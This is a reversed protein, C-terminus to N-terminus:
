DGYPILVSWDGQCSTLSLSWVYAFGFCYILFDHAFLTLKSDRSLSLSWWGSLLFSWLTSLNVLLLSVYYRLLQYSQFQVMFFNVLTSLIM